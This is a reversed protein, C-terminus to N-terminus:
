WERPWTNFIRGQPNGALHREVEGSVARAEEREERAPEGHEAGCLVRFNGSVGDDAHVTIANAGGDGGWLREGDDFGLRELDHASLGIGFAAPHPEPNERDHANVAIRFARLNAAVKQVRTLDPM